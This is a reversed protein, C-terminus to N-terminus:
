KVVVKKGNIIYIGGKTPKDVKQGRLNYIANVTKEVAPVEFIGTEYFAKEVCFKINDFFFTVDNAKDKSLNFAISRMLKDDSGAQDATISGM